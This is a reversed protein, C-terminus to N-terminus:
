YSNKSRVISGHISLPIHVASCARGVFECSVDTQIERLDALKDTTAVAVHPATEREETLVDAKAVAM